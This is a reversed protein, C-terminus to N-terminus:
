RPKRAPTDPTISLGDSARLEVKYKGDKALKISPAEGHAARLGAKKAREPDNAYDWIKSWVEKEFPNVDSGESYAAPRAGIPDLPFGENPEQFEGFIRRFLCASSSRLPDGGEIFEDLYKVVYADVYIVDGKVTFIQEEQLPRGEQDVEVFAFKTVLDKKDETLGKELVRIHAVRHDVKLLRIATDLRQIKKQQEVIEKKQVENNARLKKNETDKKALEADKAQIAQLYGAISNHYIGYGFWGAIGIMGVLAASVIARILGTMATIAGFFGFGRVPPQPVAPGLPPVTSEPEM